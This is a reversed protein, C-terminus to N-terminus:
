IQHANQMLIMLGNQQIVSNSIINNDTKLQYQICIGISTMLKMINCILNIQTAIAVPTESIEVRKIVKSSIVIINCESSLEKTILKIFFDEIMMEYLIPYIYWGHLIKSEKSICINAFPM